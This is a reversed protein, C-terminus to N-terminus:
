YVDRKYRGALSLQELQKEGLTARLADDVGEAMGKLSGCVMLVAGKDVWARLDDATKLADQVYRPNRPCRSFALDVKQLHGSHQWTAIEKNFIRDKDPSREGFFLWNQSLGLKEREHLIARLGAFGSGNGILILPVDEKPGKFLPNARIRLTVDDGSKLYHTLWGSALGFSGDPNRQQRVLLDLSGDEPISAISYARAAPAPLAQKPSGDEEPYCPIVEAIDGAQWPESTEKDPHLRIWYLSEGPSGPNVVYRERLHWRHYASGGPSLTFSHDELDPVKIKIGCARLQEYGRALERACSDESQADIEIVPFMPTAGHHKLGQYVSHGFGCFYRYSRDGLALVSFKLHSLNKASATLFTRSFRVGNDPPEGEGYTSVVFIACAAEALLDDDVRDLSLLSVPGELHEAIQSAYRVATGSQSAYIVVTQKKSAVGYKEAM